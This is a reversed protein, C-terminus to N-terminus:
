QQESEGALVSSRELSSVLVPAAFRRALELRAGAQGQVAFALEDVTLLKINVLRITSLPGDIVLPLPDETLGLLAGVREEPTVFRARHPEPIPVDYLETTMLGLDGLLAGIGGHSAAFQSMQWVLQFLWSGAVNEVPTDSVAFCELGFGNVDHPGEGADFPDSLGDSAILISASRRAVRFSQRLAPWRPGGTFSPNILHALVDGDVSGWRQWARGRAEFTDALLRDAETVRHWRRGFVL